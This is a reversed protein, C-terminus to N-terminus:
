NLKVQSWDEAHWVIRKLTSRLQARLENFDFESVLEYAPVRCHIEKLSSSFHHGAPFM